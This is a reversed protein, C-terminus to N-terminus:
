RDWDEQHHCDDGHSQERDKIKDLDYTACHLHVASHNSSMLGACAFDPGSTSRSFHWKRRASKTGYRYGPRQCDTMRVFCPQSYHQVARSSSSGRYHGTWRTRQYSHPAQRGRNNQKGIVTRACRRAANPRAQTHTHTQRHTQRDTHRDTQTDTQRDTQAHQTQVHKRM